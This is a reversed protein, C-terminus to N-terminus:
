KNAGAHDHQALDHQSHNHGAHDHAMAAPKEAVVADAAALAQQGNPTSVPVSKAELYEMMEELQKSNLSLNPMLVKYKKALELAIPDKRARMKNPEALYNIVWKRERRATIGMLDPGLLDGKGFTHCGACRSAFMLQGPGSVEPRPADAISKLTKGVSWGPDFTNKVESVIYSPDAALPVRIWQGRAVDGAKVANAHQEKAGRDGLKDRVKDIDERKGTLFLWGPGAGYRAAYEKLVQPTDHEPDLTISYMHIDKGVSSGLLKQVRVMNATDLPCGQECNAFVFDILVKKGKLLDDYFMVTKGDQTVLPVNPFYDAGWAPAKPAALAAGALTGSISVALFLRAFAVLRKIM